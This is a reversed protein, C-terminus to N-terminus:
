TELIQEQFALALILVWFSKKFLRGENAFILKKKSNIANILANM